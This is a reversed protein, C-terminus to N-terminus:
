TINMQKEVQRTVIVAVIYEFLAYIIEVLEFLGVISLGVWLGIIGGLDSIFQAIPYEYDQSNLSGNENLNEVQIVALNEQIYGIDSDSSAGPAAFRAIKQVYFSRKENTYNRLFRTDMDVQYHVENCLPRKFKHCEKKLLKLFVGKESYKIKVNDMCRLNARVAESSYLTSNLCLRPPYQQSRYIPLFPNYCKCTELFLRQSIFNKCDEYSGHFVSSTRLLADFLEMQFPKEICNTKEKLRQTRSMELHVKVITGPDVIHAKMFSMMYNPPVVHISLGRPAYHCNFEKYSSYSMGVVLKLAKLTLGKQQLPILDPHHSPSVSLCPVPFFESDLRMHFGPGHIPLYRYSDYTGTTTAITINEIYTQFFSIVAQTDDIHFAEPDISSMLLTHDFYNYTKGDFSENQFMKSRNILQRWANITEPYKWFPIPNMANCLIIDPWIFPEYDPTFVNLVPRSLYRQTVHFLNIAFGVVGGILLIIWFLRTAQNRSKSLRSLGTVGSSELLKKLHYYAKASPSSKSREAKRKPVANNGAHLSVSEM